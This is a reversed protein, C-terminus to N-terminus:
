GIHLDIWEPVSPDSSIAELAGNRLFPLNEVAGAHPKAADIRRWTEIDVLDCDVVDNADSSVLEVDWIHLDV